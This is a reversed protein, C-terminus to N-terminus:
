NFDIESSRRSLSIQQTEAIKNEVSSLRDIKMLTKQTPDQAKSGKVIVLKKIYFRVRGFKVIDGHVM